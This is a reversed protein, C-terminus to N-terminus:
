NIHSVATVRRWELELIHELEYSHYYNAVNGASVNSHEQFFAAM